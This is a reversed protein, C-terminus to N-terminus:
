KLVPHPIPLMDELRRNYTDKTACEHTYFGLRHM